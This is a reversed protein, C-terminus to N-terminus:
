LGSYLLAHMPVGSFRSIHDDSIPTLSKFDCMRPSVYSTAVAASDPFFSTTHRLSFSLIHESCTSNLTMPHQNWDISFQEDDDEMALDRDRYSFPGTCFPTVSPLYFM